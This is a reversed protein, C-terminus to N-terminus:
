EHTEELWRVLDGLAEKPVSTCYAGEFPLCHGIRDILVFRPERNRAKKDLEMAELFSKGHFGKPLKLEILYKKYLALIRDLASQPLYGLYCSLFSEAMCGISVAEGHPIKYHYLHELAHAVTHGFNLVRRLGSREEPDKKVIDSKVKVSIRVIGDIGKKWDGKELHNWLAEDAILGYKLIEGLGNVWEKEPLRDLFDINFFIAHPHYFSGILNKGFPTDLGTKGGISADVMGLLTTPILILPVGRMYTSAVFAALDTAVGGGLGIIWSDKGMKKKFLADELFQKTERNKSREGAPFSIIECELGEEELTKQVKVGFLEAVRDDSIITGRSSWEKCVAGLGRLNRDFFLQTEIPSARWSLTWKKM